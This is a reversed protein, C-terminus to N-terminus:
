LPLMFHISFGTSQPSSYVGMSMDKSGIRHLEPIVIGCITGVALGMAIDSPFHSLTMLRIYSMALPPIAALGYVLYKNADPHYDSYVKAIFFSSAAMSAVHGSYFSAKNLGNKRDEGYDAYYVKPRYRDIFNPGFPTLSYVGLTVMNVELGITMVHLWDSRIDRDLLVALPMVAGFIQTIEAYVNWSPVLAINQHLAIRDFSPVNNPNVASLEADTIDSKPIGLWVTGGALGALIIPASVWYNVHYIPKSTSHPALSRASISSDSEQARGMNAILLIPLLLITIKKM